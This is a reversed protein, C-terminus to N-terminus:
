PQTTNDFRKIDSAKNTTKTTAKQQQRKAPKQQERDKKITATATWGGNNNKNKVQKETCRLEIIIVRQETIEEYLQNKLQNKM